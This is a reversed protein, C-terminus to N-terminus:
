RSIWDFIDKFVCTEARFGEGSAAPTGKSFWNNLGPYLKVAFPIEKDGAEKREVNRQRLAAELIQTELVEVNQDAEGQLIFVPYEVSKIAAKYDFELLDRMLRWQNRRWNEDGGDYTRLKGWERRLDEKKRYIALDDAGQFELTREKQRLGRELINYAPPALLVAWKVDSFRSCLVQAVVSGLTSHGVVYVPAGSNEKKLCHYAATADNILDELGPEADGMDSKGTGRADYRFVFMGRASLYAALDKFIDSRYLLVKENEDIKDDPNLIVRAVINGDRDAGSTGGIILLSKLSKKDGKPYTFSGALKLRGSKFSVETSECTKQVESEGGLPQSKINRNVISYGRSPVRFEIIESLGTDVYLDADMGPSVLNIRIARYKKRDEGRGVTLDTEGKVTVTVPLDGKAYPV